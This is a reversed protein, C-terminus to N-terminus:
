VKYFNITSRTIVCKLIVVKITITNVNFIQHSLTSILRVEEHSLTSILRVEEHSLTSILRVEEHLLEFELNEAVLHPRNERYHVTRLKQSTISRLMLIGDQGTDLSHIKEGPFRIILLTSVTM